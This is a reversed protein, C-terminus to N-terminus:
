MVEIQRYAAGVYWFYFTVTPIKFAKNGRIDKKWSIGWPCKGSEICARLGEPNARLFKSVVPLPIYVPHEEVLKDLEGIRDKIPQPITM